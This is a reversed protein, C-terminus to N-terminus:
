ATRTEGTTLNVAKIAADTVVAGKPDTIVGSIAGTDATQGFGVGVVACLSMLVSVACLLSQQLTTRGAGLISISAPNFLRVFRKDAGAALKMGDRVQMRQIEALGVLTNMSTRRTGSRSSRFVRDMVTRKLGLAAERALRPPIGAPEPGSNRSKVVCCRCHVSLIFTPAPLLCRM